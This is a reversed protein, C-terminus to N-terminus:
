ATEAEAYEEIAPCTCILNRDGFADNIRKVSPWFKSEKVWPLPYAAQSRTYPHKWEDGTVEIATHPSNVL